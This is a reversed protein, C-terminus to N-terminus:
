IRPENLFNGSQASIEIPQRGTIRINCIYIKWTFELTDLCSQIM